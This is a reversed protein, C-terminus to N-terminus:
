RDRMLVMMTGDDSLAPDIRFGLSGYFRVLTDREPGYTGFPHAELYIRGVGRRHATEIWRRMLERGLGGRLHSPNVEVSSIYGAPPTSNVWNTLLNSTEHKEYGDLFRALRRPPGYMGRITGAKSQGRKAEATITLLQLGNDVAFQGEIDDDDPQSAADYDFSYDEINGLAALGALAYMPLTRLPQMFWPANWTM